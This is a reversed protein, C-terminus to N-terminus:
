VPGGAAGQLLVAFCVVAYV